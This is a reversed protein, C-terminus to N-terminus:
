LRVIRSHTLVEAGTETILVDNELRVGGFEPHYLGPEITVIHGPQLLAEPSARMSLMPAEHADLGIGHGLSHPMFWGAKKFLDDVLTAVKLLPVGPGCAEVAIRHAEEILDIMTKQEQSLVDSVFSMTVDSTYGEFRAGFDLISLGANAFPGSTFAPFAHIGFSRGPGAALTEFGMGEAGMRRAERELFLAVDLETSLMGAAIEKEVMDMLQDTYSAIRRYFGTEDADKRARMERIFMDIGSRECVLDFAEFAQVLEIYDPYPMSSPVAIKAGQPVALLNLAARLADSAQRGFDTYSLIHDADGMRNAMNIDWAILVSVGKADVVLMADSPQGCLYRLSSDRGHEFDSIMVAALGHRGLEAALGARRRFYKTTNM